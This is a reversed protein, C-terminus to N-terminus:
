SLSFCVTSQRLSPNHFYLAGLSTQKVSEISIQFRSPHKCIMMSWLLKGKITLQSCFPRTFHYYSEVGKQCEVSSIFCCIPSVEHKSVQWLDFGIAGFSPYSYLNEDAEYEPNEIEPHVWKGSYNPNEIKKPAWEGQPILLLFFCM